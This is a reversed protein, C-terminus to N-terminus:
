LELIAAKLKKTSKELHEILSESKNNYTLKMILAIDSPSIKEDDIGLTEKAWIKFLFEPIEELQEKTPPSSIPYKIANFINM